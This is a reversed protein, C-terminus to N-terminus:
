EKGEKIARVVDMADAGRVHEDILRLCREREAAAVLAAFQELWEMTASAVGFETVFLTGAKHGLDIIDDQTM